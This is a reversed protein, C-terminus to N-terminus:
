QVVFHFQDSARRNGAHDITIIRWYYTGPGNLPTPSTATIPLSKVDTPAFYWRAGITTSDHKRYLYLSDAVPYTTGGLPYDTSYWLLSQTTGPHLTDGHMHTATAKDPQTRDLYLTRIHWPTESGENKGRVQWQYVHDQTFTHTYTHAVFATDLVLTLSGSTLHTIRFEYQEIDPDKEWWFTVPNASTYLSDAPSHLILAKHAIDPSLIESCSALILIALGLLLTAPRPSRPSTRLSPLPKGSTPSPKM